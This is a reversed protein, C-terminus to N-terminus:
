KEMLNVLTGNEQFMVNKFFRKGDTDAIFETVKEKVPKITDKDNNLRKALDDLKLRSQMVNYMGNLEITLVVSDEKQEFRGLLRGAYYGRKGNYICMFTEDKM